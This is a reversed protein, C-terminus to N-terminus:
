IKEDECYKLFQEVTVEKLVYKKFQKFTIKTFGEKINRSWKNTDNIQISHHYGNAEYYSFRKRIENNVKVCWKEPLVFDKVIEAWKNTNPNYINLNPQENVYLFDKLKEHTSCYVETTTTIKKGFTSIIKTGVPYKLKAQELLSLEQKVKLKVYLEIKDLGIGKTGYLETIACIATKANNWRFGIITLYKKNRFAPNKSDSFVRIKDGIRYVGGESSEVKIIQSTGLIKLVKDKPKELQEKIVFQADYAKKTSPKYHFMYNKWYEKLQHEVVWKPLESTKYVTGIIESNSHNNDIAEVYEPIFTKMAEEYSVFKDEKICTELWHKEEPTAELFILSKVNVNGDKFLMKSSSINIINRLDNTAKFIYSGIHNNAKYIEGNILDSKQLQKM